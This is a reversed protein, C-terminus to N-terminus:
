ITKRMIIFCVRWVVCRAGLFNISEDQRPSLSLSLPLCQMVWPAKYPAIETPLCSHFKSSKAAWSVVTIDISQGLMEQLLQGSCKAVVQHYIAALSALCHTPLCQRRAIHHRPDIESSLRDPLKDVIDRTSDLTLRSPPHAM